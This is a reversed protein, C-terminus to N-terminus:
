HKLVQVCYRLVTALLKKIIFNCIYHTKLKLWMKLFSLLIGGCMEFRVDTDFKMHALIWPFLNKRGVTIRLTM